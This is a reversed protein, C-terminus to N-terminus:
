IDVRKVEDNRRSLCLDSLKLLTDFIQRYGVIDVVKSQFSSVLLQFLHVGVGEFDFSSGDQVTESEVGGHHCLGSFVHTTTPPHTDSKSPREEDFGMEEQEIFGGIVQIKFGDDPELGVKGHVVM